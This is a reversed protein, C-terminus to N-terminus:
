NNFNFEYLITDLFPYSGLNALIFYKNNSILLSSSIENKGNDIIKNNIENGDKDIESLYIDYNKGNFSDGIILYKDKDIIKIQKGYDDFNKGYYKEWIIDGINNTKVLFIEGGKGISYSFGLLIFKNDITEVVSFARDDLLGGFSKQWEENGDSDLKILWADFHKLRSFTYGSVIFGGDKTAKVSRGEDWYSNGINKSWLVEGMDNIKVVWCNFDNRDRNTIKGVAIFGNDNTHDISFLEDWGLDGYYKEWIANGNEDIKMLFGDSEGSGFSETKGTILFSSEDNNLVYYAEDYDEGGLYKEWLTEGYSNIRILKIDNDTRELSTSFGAIIKSGNNFDIISKGVDNLSNGYNYRNQPIVFCNFILLLSSFKKM